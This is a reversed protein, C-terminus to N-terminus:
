RDVTEEVMRAVQEEMGVDIQLAAAEGGEKVIREATKEAGEPDIDAAVVRSGERAFLIATARGQGSGAGTICSVKHSLRM